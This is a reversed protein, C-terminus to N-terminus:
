LLLALVVLLREGLPLLVRVLEELLALRPALGLPLLVRLLLLGAPLGELLDQLLAVGPDLGCLEYIVLLGRAGLVGGAHAMDEDGELM